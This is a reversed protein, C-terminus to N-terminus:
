DYWCSPLVEREAELLESIIADTDGISTVLPDTLMARRLLGRDCTAVAEATLEHTDLVLEQLGRLGRPMEGVPRPHPGAEDIDCLLELFADDAMNSVAGRNFSNLYFPKDLGGVMTEIVDTAADPGFMESFEAIPTRGAVFGDVQEWMGDHIVYRSDPDWIPLPPIQESAHGRGQWFRVYEKTHAICAPLYGFASYLQYGIASNFAAKSGVGAVGTEAQADQHMAEAIAPVVDEGDYEAKLVWTFHNVGAIRLDFGGDIAACYEDVRDIIGARMAFQHKVHPMHLGDCLAFSRVQPAYRQLGIGMVATPNVYNILWADPCLSEVDRACDLIVPLERMSRFIGGPGITDGSCMRVGHRLSVQCDIGRFMASRDAFSLVVYDADGLVDTRDTSAELALPVGEHAIVMEALRAMKDLRDADTDVLALTGGSLHPSHAMQWIAQRGFFLSGAGIVVVKPSQPEAQPM